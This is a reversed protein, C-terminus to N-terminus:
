CCLGLNNFLEASSLGMQVLRRYYLLAVEPQDTYFHQSALCSIAEICSADYILVQKYFTAGNEMDNLMDHIRAIGLLISTDGEHKETAEMYTSLATNPQDLKM